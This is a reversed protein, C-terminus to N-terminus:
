HHTNSRGGWYVDRDWEFDVMEGDMNIKWDNEELEDFDIEEWSGEAYLLIEGDGFSWDREYNDNNGWWYEWHDGNLIRIVTPRDEYAVKVKFGYSSPVSMYAGTHGDVTLTLNQSMNSGIVVFRFEYYAM